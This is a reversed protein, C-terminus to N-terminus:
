KNSKAPVSQVQSVQHDGPDFIIFGRDEQLFFQQIHYLTRLKSLRLLSVMPLQRRLLRLINDM